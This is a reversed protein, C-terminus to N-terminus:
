PLTLGRRSLFDSAAKIETPSGIVRCTDSEDVVTVSFEEELDVAVADLSSRPLVIETSDRLTASNSV